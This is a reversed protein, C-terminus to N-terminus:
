TCVKYELHPFFTFSELGKKVELILRVCGFTKKLFERLM